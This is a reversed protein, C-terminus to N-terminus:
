PLDEAPVVVPEFDCMCGKHDGPMYYGYPPWGHSNTLVPDDFNQFVQGDLHMHPAFNHKRLAPGYVWRYAEVSAGADRLAGRILEGTGIGGAPRTGGDVLTVLAGGNGDTVLGTAGGARAMAHRVLGSPVSLTPDFEGVDPATPTPDYLRGGALADLAEVMWGWAEDLDAAQRLALASREARTFGSAVQGAIDLAQEQANAGWTRFQQELDDWAGDLADAESFGLQAVAGPGLTVFAHTVPVTRLTARLPTGNTRSRLRNGARELARNMADNAAVLLRSRLDRDLEMLRRGPAQDDAAPGLAFPPPAQLAPAQSSRAALAASLM